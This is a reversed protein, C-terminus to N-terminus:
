RCAFMFDQWILIGMEDAKQYFYDSEFMGGGWVRIMNMHSKQAFNLLQDIEAKTIREPLIHIPVLNAGKIFISDDNITFFFTNGLNTPEGTLEAISKQVLEVTRFGVKIRKRSTEEGSQDYVKATLKYMNPNGQGNPWWQNIGSRSIKGDMTITFYTLDANENEDHSFDKTEDFVVNGKADEIEVALNGTFSRKMECIVEIDIAWHDLKKSKFKIYQISVGDYAEIFVPRWIGVSPFSPGIDWGFSSPM